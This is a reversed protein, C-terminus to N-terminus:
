AAADLQMTDWDKYSKKAAPKPLNYITAVNRTPTLRRTLDFLPKAIFEAVIALAAITFTFAVYLEIYDIVQM